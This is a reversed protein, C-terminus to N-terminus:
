LKEVHIKGSEQTPKNNQGLMIYPFHIQAESWVMLSILTQIGMERLQLMERWSNGESSSVQNDEEYELVSM